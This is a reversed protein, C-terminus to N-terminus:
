HACELKPAAAQWCPTHVTPLRAPITEATCSMENYLM